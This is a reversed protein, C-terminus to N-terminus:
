NESAHVHFLIPRTRRGEARCDLDGDRADVAHAELHVRLAVRAGVGDEHLGEQDVGCAACAACAARRASPPGRLGGEGGCARPEPPRKLAAHTASRAVGCLCLRASEACALPRHPSDSIPSIACKIFHFM